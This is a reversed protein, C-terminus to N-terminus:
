DNLVAYRATISDMMKLLADSADAVILRYSPGTERDLVSKFWIWQVIVDELDARIQESSEPETRLHELTDNFEVKIRELENNLSLLDFGWSKLMYLKGLRQALMRQRGSINVLMEERQNSTDQLMITIQDTAYLLDEALHNVRLASDRTVAGTVLPKFRSWAISVWEMTEQYIPDDSSKKLIEYQTEFREVDEHIALYSDKSFVGLGVQCYLKVIRQSLMRQSGSLNILQKLTLPKPDETYVIDKLTTSKAQAAPQSWPFLTLAILYIVPLLKRQLM